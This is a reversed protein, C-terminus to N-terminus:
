RHPKSSALEVVGRDRLKAKFASNEELLVENISAISALKAKLEENEQRYGASKQREAILDQHKIDRM